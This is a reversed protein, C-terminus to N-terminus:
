LQDLSQDSVEVPLDATLSSVIVAPAPGVLIVKVRLVGFKFPMTEPM